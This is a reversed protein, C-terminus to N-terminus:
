RRDGFTIYNPPWGPTQIRCWHPIFKFFRVDPHNYLERAGYKQELCHKAIGKEDGDLQRSAGELQVSENFQHNYIVISAQMNMKLNQYKRYGKMTEFYLTPMDNGMPEGLAFNIVASEPMNRVSATSLFCVENQLLWELQQDM